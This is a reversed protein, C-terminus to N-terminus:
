WKLRLAQNLSWSWTEAEAQYSIASAGLELAVSSSIEWNMGVGWTDLRTDALLLETTSHTVALELRSFPQVTLSAGMSNKPFGSIIQTAGGATAGDAIRELWSEIIGSYIGYEVQLGLRLWPLLTQQTDISILNQVLQRRIVRGSLPRIVRSIQYQLGYGITTINMRGAGLLESSILAASLDPGLSRSEGALISYSAGAELLWRPSAELRGGARVSSMAGTAASTHSGSLELTWETSLAFSSALSGGWLNGSGEILGIRLESDDKVKQRPHDSPELELLLDFAEDVRDASRGDPAAALTVLMGSLFSATLITRRIM